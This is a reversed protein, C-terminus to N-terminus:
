NTIDFHSGHKDEIFAVIQPICTWSLWSFICYDGQGLQSVGLLSM